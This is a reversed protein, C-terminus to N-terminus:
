PRPSRHIATQEKRSKSENVLVLYKYKYGQLIEQVISASGVVVQLREECGPYTAM